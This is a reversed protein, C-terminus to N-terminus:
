NFLYNNNHTLVSSNKILVPNNRSITCKCRRKPLSCFHLVSITSVTTNHTHQKTQPRVITETVGAERKHTTCVPPSLHCSEELGESLQSVVALLWHFHQFWCHCHLRPGICSEPHTINVCSLNPFIRKLRGISLLYVQGYNV